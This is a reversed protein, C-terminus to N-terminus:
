KGLQLVSHYYFNWDLFPEIIAFARDTFLLEWAWIIPYDSFMAESLLADEWQDSSPSGQPVQVTQLDSYQSAIRNDIPVVIEYYSDVRAHLAPVDPLRDILTEPDFQVPDQLYDAQDFYSFDGIAFPYNVLKHFVVPVFIINALGSLSSKVRNSVIISLGPQFIPPVVLGNRRVLLDISLDDGVFHCTANPDGKLEAIGHFMKYHFINFLGRESLKKRIVHVNM